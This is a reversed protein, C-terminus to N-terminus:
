QSKLEDTVDTPTANAWKGHNRWVWPRIRMPGMRTQNLRVADPCARKLLSRALMDSWQKGTQSHLYMRIAELTGVDKTFPGEADLFAERLMEVEPGQSKVVM